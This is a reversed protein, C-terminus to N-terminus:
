SNYLLSSIRLSASYFLDANNKVGGVQCLRVLAPRPTGQRRKFELSEVKM